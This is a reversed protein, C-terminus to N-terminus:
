WRMVLQGERDEARHVNLGQLIWVFPWWKDGNLIGMDIFTHLALFICIVIYLYLLCLSASYALFFGFICELHWLRGGQEWGITSATDAWLPVNHYQYQGSWLSALRWDQISILAKQRNAAALLTSGGGRGKGGHGHGDGGGGGIDSSTKWRHASPTPNKSIENLRPSSSDKSTFVVYWSWKMHLRLSTCVCSKWNVRVKICSDSIWTIALIKGNCRKLSNIASHSRVWGDCSGLYGTKESFWYGRSWTRWEAQSWSKLIKYLYEFWKLWHYKKMDADVCPIDGNSEWEKRKIWVKSHFFVPAIGYFWVFMLMM